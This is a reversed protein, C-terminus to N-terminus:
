RLERLRGQERAAGIESQADTLIALRQRDHDRERSNVLQPPDCRPGVRDLDTARDGVGIGQGVEITVKRREPGEDAADTRPLNAIKSRNGTIERGDGIPSVIGQKIVSSAVTVSAERAPSRTSGTSDNM